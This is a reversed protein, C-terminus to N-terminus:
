VVDAHGAGILPMNTAPGSRAGTGDEVEGDDPGISQDVFPNVIRMPESGFGPRGAGERDTVHFNRVIIPRTPGPTAVGAPYAYPSFGYPRAVPYSYYVPPHKAFYPIYDHTYTSYLPYGGTYGVGGWVGTAWCGAHGSAPLTGLFILAAAGIISSRTRM